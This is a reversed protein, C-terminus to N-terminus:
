KECLELCGMITKGEASVDTMERVALSLTTGNYHQGAACTHTNTHLLPKMDKLDGVWVCINLVCMCFGLCERSICCRSAPQYVGPFVYGVQDYCM